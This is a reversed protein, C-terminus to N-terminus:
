VARIQSPTSGTLRPSRFSSAMPSLVIEEAPEGNPLRGELETTTRRSEIEVAADPHKLSPSESLM